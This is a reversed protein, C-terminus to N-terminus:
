TYMKSFHNWAALVFIFFLQSCSLSYSYTEGRKGRGKGRRGEGRRGKGRRGKGGEGSGRKEGEGRLRM